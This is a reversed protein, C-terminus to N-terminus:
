KRAKLADFDATWERVAKRNVPAVMSANEESLFHDILAKAEIRAKKVEDRTPFPHYIMVDCLREHLEFYDM